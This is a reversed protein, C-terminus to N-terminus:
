QPLGPTLPLHFPNGQDDVYLLHPTGGAPHVVQFLGSQGNWEAGIPMHRGALRGYVDPPPLIVALQPIWDDIQGATEAAAVQTVLPSVAMADPTAGTWRVPASFELVLMAGESMPLRYPLSLRYGDGALVPRLAEDGGAAYTYLTEGQLM